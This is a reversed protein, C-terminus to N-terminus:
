LNRTRAGGGMSQQTPYGIYPTACRTVLLTQPHLKRANGQPHTGFRICFVLALHQSRAVSQFLQQLIIM